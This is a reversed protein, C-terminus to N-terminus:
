TRPSALFVPIVRDTNQQYEAYPPLRGGGPGVMNREDGDAEKVSVDLIESGDQLRVEDPRAKLNFYWSPNTPPGGESAVDCLPWRTGGAHVPGQPNEREPEADHRYRGAPRHRAPTAKREMPGNTRPWRTECGTRASPEYDGELTM